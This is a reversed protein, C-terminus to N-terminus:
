WLNISGHEDERVWYAKGEDARVYIKDAKGVKAFVEEPTIEQGDPSQIVRQTKQSYYRKWAVVAQWKLGYADAVAHVGYKDAAKSLLTKENQDYQSKVPPLGNFGPELNEKIM